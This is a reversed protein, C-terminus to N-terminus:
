QKIFRIDTMTDYDPFIRREDSEEDPEAYGIYLQDCASQETKTKREWVAVARDLAQEETTGEPLCETYVESHRKTEDDIIFWYKM